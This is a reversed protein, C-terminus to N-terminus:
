IVNKRYDDINVLNQVYKTRKLSIDILNTNMEKYILQAKKIFDTKPIMENMSKDKNHLMYKGIQYDLKYLRSLLIKENSSLINKYM